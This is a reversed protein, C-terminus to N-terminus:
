VQVEERFHIVRRYGALAETCFSRSTSRHYRVCARKTMIPARVRVPPRRFTHLRNAHKRPSIQALSKAQCRNLSVDASRQSLESTYTEPNHSPASVHLSGTGFRATEHICTIELNTSNLHLVDENIYLITRWSTLRRLRTYWQCELLAIENPM